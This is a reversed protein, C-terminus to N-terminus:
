VEGVALTDIGCAARREINRKQKQLVAGGRGIHRGPGHAKNQLRFFKVRFSSSGHINLTGFLFDLTRHLGVKGRVINAARQYRGDALAGNQQHARRAYAFGLNHLLNRLLAVNRQHGIGDGVM